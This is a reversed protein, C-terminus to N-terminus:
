DEMLINDWARSQNAQNEPFEPDEGSGNGDDDDDGGPTIGFYINVLPDNFLKKM